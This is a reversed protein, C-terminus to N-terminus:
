LYPDWYHQTIARANEQESVRTIEQTKSREEFRRQRGGKSDELLNTMDERDRGVDEEEAGGEGRGDGGYKDKDEDDEEEMEDLEEM